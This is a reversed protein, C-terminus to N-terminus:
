AKVPEILKACAAAQPAGAPLKACVGDFQKVVEGVPADHAGGGRWRNLQTVVKTLARLNAGDFADKAKGAQALVSAAIADIRASDDPALAVANAFYTAGWRRKTAPGSASDYAKRYWDLAATKDLAGECERGVGVQRGGGGLSPSNGCRAICTRM